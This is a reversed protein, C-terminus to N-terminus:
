IVNASESILNVPVKSTSPGWPLLGHNLNNDTNHVISM